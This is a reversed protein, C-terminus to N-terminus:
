NPVNEVAIVEMLFQRNGGWHQSQIEIGNTENFKEAYDKRLKINNKSSNDYFIMDLRGPNWQFLFGLILFIFHCNKTNNSYLKKIFSM